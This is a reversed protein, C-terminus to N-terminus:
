NGGVTVLNSFIILNKEDDHLNLDLQIINWIFDMKTESTPIQDYGVTCHYSHNQYNEM